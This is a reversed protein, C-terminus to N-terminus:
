RLHMLNLVFWSLFETPSVFLIPAFPSLTHQRQRVPCHGTCWARACAFWGSKPILHAHEAIIWQVTWHALPAFARQADITSQVSSCHHVTGRLLWLLSTLPWRVHGTHWRTGSSSLLRWRDVAGFGLPYSVHRAGFLSCHLTRHAVPSDPACM